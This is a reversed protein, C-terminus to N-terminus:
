SNVYYYRSNYDLSLKQLCNSETDPRVFCHKQDPYSKVFRQHNEWFTNKFILQLLRYFLM